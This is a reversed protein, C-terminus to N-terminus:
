LLFFQASLVLFTKILGTQTDDRVSRLSVFNKFHANSIYSRQQYVFAGNKVWKILKVM